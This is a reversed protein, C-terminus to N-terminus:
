TDGWPLPKQDPNSGQHYTAEGAKLLRSLRVDTESGFHTSFRVQPYIDDSTRAFVIAANASKNVEVAPWASWALDGEIADTVGLTQSFFKHVDDLFIVPYTNVLLRVYRVATFPGMADNTVFYLFDNRFVAKL